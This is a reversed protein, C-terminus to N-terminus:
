ITKESKQDDDKEPRGVSQGSKNQEETKKQKNNKNDQETKGLLDAINMTSSMLNPLM